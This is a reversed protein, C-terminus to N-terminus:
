GKFIVFKRLAYNFMVATVLNAAFALSTQVGWVAVLRNMAFTGLATAAASVACFSLFELWVSLRGPRFVFIRNLAYCFVNAPVFACANSWVTRGARLAEDIEPAAIGFLRVVPDDASVCPFVKWAFLSFAVINVLTALGGVAGYKAFQILPHAEAGGGFFQRIFGRFTAPFPVRDRSQPQGNM